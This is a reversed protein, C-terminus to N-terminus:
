YVKEVKINEIEYQFYKSNEEVFVIQVKVSLNINLEKNIALGTPTYFLFSKETDELIDKTDNEIKPNFNPIFSYLQKDGQKISIGVISLNRIASSENNKLRVEGSVHFSCPGGPMLNLWSDIKTEKVSLNLSGTTPHHACSIKGFASIFIFMTLVFYSKM